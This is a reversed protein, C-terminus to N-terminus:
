PTRGLFVRCLRDAAYRPEHCPTLQIPQPRVLFYQDPAVPEAEARFPRAGDRIVLEGRTGASDRYAAAIEWDCSKEGVTAAVRLGGPTSGGGLDIRHRDFYHQGQEAGEDTIVPTPGPRRLDLFVGPYPAAGQAPHRLVFRATSPACRVNVARMDTISLQSTRDSFLNLKFATTPGAPPGGGSMGPTTGIVRAGLPGLIRWVDRGYDTPGIPVAELSRQEAPTLPRDLVITWDDRDLTSLDPDASATFPTEEQDLEKQADDDARARSSASLTDYVYTVAQGLVATALLGAAIVLLGRVLVRGRRAPPVRAGPAVRELAFDWFSPDHQEPDPAAPAPRPGEVPASPPPPTSAPPPTTPPPPAQPPPAQSPSPDSSPNRDPPSGDAPPTSLPDGTADEAAPRSGRRPIPLIGM